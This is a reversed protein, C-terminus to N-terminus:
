GLYSHKEEAAERRELLRVRELLLNIQYQQEVNSAHITTLQKGLVDELLAVKQQREEFLLVTHRIQVLEAMNQKILKTQYTTVKATVDHGNRCAPLNSGSMGDFDITTRDHASTNPEVLPGEVHFDPIVWFHNVQPLQMLNHLNARIRDSNPLPTWFKPSILNLWQLVAHRPHSRRPWSLFALSPRPYARLPLSPLAVSRIPLCHCPMAHTNMIGRDNAYVRSPTAPIAKSQLQHDQVPLAHRRHSRGPFSQFPKPNKIDGDEECLVSRGPVDHFPPCTVPTANIPLSQCPRSLWPVAHTKKMRSNHQYDQSTSSHRPTANIPAGPRPLSRFSISRIPACQFPMPKM